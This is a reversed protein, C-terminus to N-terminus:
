GIFHVPVAVVLAMKLAINSLSTEKNNTTV